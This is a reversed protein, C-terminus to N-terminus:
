ICELDQWAGVNIDLEHVTMMDSYSQTFDPNLKNFAEEGVMRRLVLTDELAEHQTYNQQYREALRVLSHSRQYPLLNQFYPLTDAFGAVKDQFVSGLICKEIAILMKKSDFRFCNHAALHPPHQLQLAEIWGIFSNLCDKISSSQVPSGRYYLQGQSMTIHHILSAEGPIPNEPLVYQNFTSGDPAVAGIQLIEADDGTFIKEM